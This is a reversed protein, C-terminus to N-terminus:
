KVDEHDVKDWSGTTSTPSNATPSNDAAAAAAENQTVGTNITNANNDESLVLLRVTLDEDDGVYSTV